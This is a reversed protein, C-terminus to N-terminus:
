RRAADSMATPRLESPAPLARGTSTGPHGTELREVEIRGGHAEVIGKAISLGLGARATRSRRDVEPEAFPGPALRPPMGVGDDTVSM